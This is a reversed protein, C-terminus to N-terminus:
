LPQKAWFRFFEHGVLWMYDHGGFWGYIWDVLDFFANKVPTVYFLLVIVGLLGWPKVKNGIEQTRPDLYPEIIAYGDLGPVPLLNLM